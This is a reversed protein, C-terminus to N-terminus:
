PAPLASKWRHLRVFRQLFQDILGASQEVLGAFLRKALRPRSRCTPLLVGLQSRARAALIASRNSREIEEASLPKPAGLPLAKLFVDANVQLYIVALVARQISAGVVVAGHGRILACTHDALTAALDRGQEISRVLTDTGGFKTHIDWVSPPYSAFLFFSAGTPEILPRLPAVAETRV